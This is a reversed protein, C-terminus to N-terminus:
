RAKQDPKGKRGHEDGRVEITEVGVIEPSDTALDALEEASKGGLEERSKEIAQDENDADVVHPVKLQVTAEMVFQAM